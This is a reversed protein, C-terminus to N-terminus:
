KSIKGVVKVAEVCNKVMERKRKDCYWRYKIDTDCISCRNTSNEESFYKKENNYISNNM